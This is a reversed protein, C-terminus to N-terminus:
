IDWFASIQATIDPSYFPHPARRISNHDLFQTVTKACYPRANDAHIMFHKWPDDRYPRFIDLLPSLIHSIYHGTNSKNHKPLVDIMHFGDSNWAVTLMM